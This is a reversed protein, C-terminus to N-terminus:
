ADTRSPIASRTRPRVAVCGSIGVTRLGCVRRSPSGDIRPRAREGSGGCGQWASTIVVALLLQRPGGVHLFDAFTYGGPGHVILNAQYGAPTVFSTAPAFMVALLFSYGRVGLGAADRRDTDRPRDHGRPHHPRGADGHPADPGTPGVPASPLRGQGCRPRRHRGVGRRRGPLGWRSSGQWCSSPTVIVISVSGFAGSRVVVLTIGIALPAKSSIGRRDEAPAVDIGETDEIRVVDESEYFFGIPDLDTRVLLLDGPQLEIEGLSTRILEDEGRIALVATDSIERVDTEAFPTCALRSSPSILFKALVGDM